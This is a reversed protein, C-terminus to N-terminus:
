DVGRQEAEVLAAGPLGLGASTHASGVASRLLSHHHRLPPLRALTAEHIEKESMGLGELMSTFEWLTALGTLPVKDIGKQMDKSTDFAQGGSNTPDRHM